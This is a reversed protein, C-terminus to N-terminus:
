GGNIDIRKVIKRYLLGSLVMLIVLWMLQIGIKWVTDTTCKNLYINIPTDILSKFPLFDTLINFWGPMFALPIVAGSFLKIVAQRIVRLGWGNETWFTFLGFIIDIYISIAIAIFTSLIFALWSVVSTQLYMSFFICSFVAVPFVTTCLNAALTGVSDFFLNRVFNIPKIILLSIEGTKVLDSVKLTIGFEILRYLVVGFIFYTVVQTKNFGVITDTNKYVESWIYYMVYVQLIGVIIGAVTSVKYCFNAKFQIKILALYKKM